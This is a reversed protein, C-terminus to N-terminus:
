LNLSNIFTTYRTPRPVDDQCQMLVDQLFFMTAKCRFNYSVDFVYYMAMLLVLGDILKTTTLEYIVEHEAILFQQKIEDDDPDSYVILSPENM